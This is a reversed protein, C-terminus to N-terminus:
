RYVGFLLPPNGKLRALRSFLSPFVILSASFAGRCRVKFLYFLVRRGRGPELARLSVDSHLSGQASKVQQLFSASTSQVSFFAPVVWPPPFVGEKRQTLLYKLSM